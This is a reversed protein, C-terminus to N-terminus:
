KTYIRYDSGVVGKFRMTYRAITADALNGVPEGFIRIFGIEQMIDDIRAAIKKAQGAGGGDLNSYVSCQYMLSAHNERCQATQSSEYVTNSAEYLCVAPFQPPSDIERSTLFIGDFEDRLATAVRDFVTSEIDIM